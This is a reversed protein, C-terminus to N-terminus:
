KGDRAAKIMNQWVRKVEAEEWAVHGQIGGYWQACNGEEIMMQTPEMAADLVTDAFVLYLGWIPPTTRNGDQDTMFGPQNPNYGASLCLARAIKERMTM